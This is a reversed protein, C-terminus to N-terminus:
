DFHCDPRNRIRNLEVLFVSKIVAISFIVADTLFFYSFPLVVVVFLLLVHLYHLFGQKTGHVDIVLFM